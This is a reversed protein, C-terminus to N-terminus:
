LNIGLMGSLSGVALALVLRLFDKSGLSAGRDGSIIAVLYLIVIYLVAVVIGIQWGKQKIKRTSYISGYIVSLTTFIVFCVSNAKDSIDYFSSIVVLLLIFALTLFFGRLVGEGIYLLKTKNEM